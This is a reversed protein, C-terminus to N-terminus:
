KNKLTLTGLKDAHRLGPFIWKGSEDKVPAKLTAGLNATNVKRAVNRAAERTAFTIM